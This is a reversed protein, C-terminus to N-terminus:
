AHPPGERAGPVGGVPLVLTFRAGRGPRNEAVVTGGHAEAVRQVISLGLGTGGKRRTFFPEFMRELAVPPLGPGEDEVTLRVAAGAGDLGGEVRVVSGAPAHQVANAVLNEMAQEVRPGDIDLTPLDRAVNEQVQVQHERALPACSRVARRVVESLRTPARRLGAPKGYDILDRMLQTLRGVQSRLLGAYEAFAPSDKLDGDLADLTASISFLPNRVEHAVGAVLSGLAEMVKAHRLQEQVARIETVDRVTLIRWDPNAEDRVWLSGLLFFWRGSSAERAQTVLSAGAEGVRRHLSAMAQWPERDALEELGHGLVDAAARPAALELARRNLRVVRMQPDAIVIGLDLADFTERWQEAALQLDAELRRQREEAQVRASVDRVASVRLTRGAYPVARGRVEVPFITGDRRRALHQYPEETGRSQHSRVLDLHEPAVFDQVPRGVFEGPECGLMRAMQENTDVVIGAETIAIGEFTAASLREFREESERLAQDAGEREIAAGLVAAAAKLAEIEPASWPREWRTEGFGLFGWWHGGSFVPVAAVAKSDFRRLFGRETEPLERVLSAVPRGARLEAGLRELSMNALTLGQARPDDLDFGWGPIGWFSRFHIRPSGGAAGDVQVLWARAAGAAAGLRAVVADARERWPGPQLLQAASFAVAELIRGRRERDENAQRSETVDALCLWYSRLQGEDVAGFMTGRMWRSSGDALVHEQDDYALRYGARVFARV